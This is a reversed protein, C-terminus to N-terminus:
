NEYMTLGCFRRLFVLAGVDGHLFYNKLTNKLLDIIDALIDALIRNKTTGGELADGGTIRWVLASKAAAYYEKNKPRYLLELDKMTIPGDYDAIFEKINEPARFDRKM